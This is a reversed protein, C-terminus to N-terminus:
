MLMLFLNKGQSLPLNWLICFSVVPSYDRKSCLFCGITSVRLPPPPGRSRCLVHLSHSKWWQSHIHSSVLKPSFFFFFGGCFCVYLCVFLFFWFLLLLVWFLVFCFLCPLLSFISYPLLETQSGLSTCQESSWGEPHLSDRSCCALGRGVAMHQRWRIGDTTTPCQAAGRGENM